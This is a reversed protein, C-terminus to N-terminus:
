KKRPDVTDPWCSYDNKQERAPTSGLAYSRAEYSKWQETFAQEFLDALTM